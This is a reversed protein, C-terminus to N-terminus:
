KETFLELAANPWVPFEQVRLDEPWQDPDGGKPDELPYSMLGSETPMPTGDPHEGCEGQWFWKVPKAGLQKVFCPVQAAQCDRVIQGIWDLECPRADPGSEGGVIVWDPHMEGALFIPGLLPEMSVFHLGAAQRFLHGRRTELRDQDEMTAGIAVNRWIRVDSGNCWPLFKEFNEPRKSLILFMLQRCDQIIQWVSDRRQELDPRDECFDMM